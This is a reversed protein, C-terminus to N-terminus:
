VSMWGSIRPSLVTVIMRFDGELSRSQVQWSGLCFLAKDTECSGVIRHGYLEVGGSARSYFVGSRQFVLTEPNERIRRMRFYALFHVLFRVNLLSDRFKQFELVALDMSFQWPPLMTEM